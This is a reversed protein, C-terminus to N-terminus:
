KILLTFFKELEQKEIISLSKSKKYLADFYVVRKHTPYKELIKEIMNETVVDGEPTIISGTSVTSKHVIHKKKIIAELTALKGVHIGELKQAKGFLGELQKKSLSGRQQYQIQISKCFEDTPKALLVKELVYAIVDIDPNVRNQMSLVKLWLKVILM